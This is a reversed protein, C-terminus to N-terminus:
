SALLILDIGTVDVRMIFIGKVEIGTVDVILYYFKMLWCIELKNSSLKKDIVCSM